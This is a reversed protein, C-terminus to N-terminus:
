CTHHIKLLYLTVFSMLVVLGSLKVNTADNYNRNLHVFKRVKERLEKRKVLETERTLSSPESTNTALESTSNMNLSSELANTETVLDTSNDAISAAHTSTKTVAETSTEVRTMEERAHTTVDYHPDFYCNAGTYNVTSWTNTLHNLTKSIYSSVSTDEMHSICKNGHSPDVLACRREVALLNVEADTSFYLCYTDYKATSVICMLDIFIDTSVFHPTDKTEAQLM